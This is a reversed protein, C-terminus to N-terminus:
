RLFFCHKSRNTMLDNCGAKLSACFVFLSLFFTKVANHIKSADDKMTITSLPASECGREKMVMFFSFCRRMRKKPHHTFLFMARSPM